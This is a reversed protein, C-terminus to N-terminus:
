CKSIIYSCFDQSFLVVTSTPWFKCWLYIWPHIKLPHLFRWSDHCHDSNQALSIWFNTALNIHSPSCTVSKKRRKHDNVTMSQFPFMGSFAVQHLRVQWHSPKSSTAPLHCSRCHSPATSRHCKRPWKPDNLNALIRPLHHILRSRKSEQPLAICLMWFEMICLISMTMMMPCNFLFKRGEKVVKEKTQILKEDSILLFQVGNGDMEMLLIWFEVTINAPWSGLCPSTVTSNPPQTAPDAPSMVHLWAYQVPGTVKGYRLFLNRFDFTYISNYQNINFIYIYIIYIYTNM